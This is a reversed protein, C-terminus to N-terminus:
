VIPRFSEVTVALCAIRQKGLDVAGIGFVVIDVGINTISVVACSQSNEVNRRKMHDLHCLFDTYSIVQDM